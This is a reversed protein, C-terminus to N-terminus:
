CPTWHSTSINLTAVKKIKVKFKEEVATKVELKNAQKDAEAKIIRVDKDVDATITLYQEEGEARLKQAQVARETRMRQFVSAETASPFESRKIRVDDIIVGIDAEATTKTRELVRSRM